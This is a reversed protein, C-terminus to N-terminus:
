AVNELEALIEKAKNLISDDEIMVVGGGPGEEYHIGVTEGKRYNAGGFYNRVTEVTVDLDDAIKQMSGDPLRDKLQRLAEFTMYM